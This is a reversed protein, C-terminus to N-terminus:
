PMFPGNDAGIEDTPLRICHLARDNTFPKICGPVMIRSITARSDSDHSLFTHEHTGRSGSGLIVTSATALLLKGSGGVMM